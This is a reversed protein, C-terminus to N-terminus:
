LVRENLESEARLWKVADLKDNFLEYFIHDKRPIFEKSACRM